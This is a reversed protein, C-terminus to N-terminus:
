FLKRKKDNRKYFSIDYYSVYMFAPYYSLMIFMSVINMIQWFGYIYGALNAVFLVSLPLMVSLVLKGSKEGMLENAYSLSTKITYGTSITIPIAVLLYTIIYSLGVFLAVSLAGSVVITAINPTSALGSLVIHVVYITLSIAFHYLNYILYMIIAYVAVVLLNNNLYSNFNNVNKLGSKFHYEIFGLFASICMVILIGGMIVHLIDIMSIDFLVDTISSFNNITMAQYQSFFEAVKFHNLFVGGFLLPVIFFVLVVFFNRFVYKISESFYKM